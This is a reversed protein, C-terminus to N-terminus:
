RTSGALNRVLASLWEAPVAGVDAVEVVLEGSVRLTLVAGAATPTFGTVKAPILRQAEELSPSWDGLRKRWWRVREACLGRKRAFTALPLGSARWASVVRRAEDTTWQRWGSRRGPKKRREGM